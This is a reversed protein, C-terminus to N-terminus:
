RKPRANGRGRPAASGRPHASKKPGKRVRRARNGDVGIEVRREDGLPRVRDGLGERLRFAHMGGAATTQWQGALGQLASVAFLLGADRWPFM